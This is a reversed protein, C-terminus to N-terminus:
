PFVRALIPMQFSFGNDYDLAGFVFEGSAYVNTPLKQPALGAHM